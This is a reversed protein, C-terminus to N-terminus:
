VIHHKIHIRDNEPLNLITKFDDELTKEYALDSFWMEIRYLPKDSETISSDVVRIGTITDSNRFQEGICGMALSEWLTDLYEVPAIGRRYFKRLMVEGGDRNRPDEWKPEVGDRFLSISAIERKDNNFTYYPKGTDSQYFLNSPKPLNNFFSWFGEITDFSGIKRTSEDYDHNSSKAHDYIVWTDNLKMKFNVKEQFNIVKEYIKKSILIRHYVSVL